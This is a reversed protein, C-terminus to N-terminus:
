DDGEIQVAWGDLHDVIAFRNREGEELADIWPKALVHAAQKDPAYGIVCDIDNERADISSYIPMGDAMPGCYGLHSDWVITEAIKDYVRPGSPREGVDASTKLGIKADSVAGELTDADVHWGGKLYAFSVTYRHDTSTNM